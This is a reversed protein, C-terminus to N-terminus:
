EMCCVQFLRITEFICASVFKASVIDESTFYPGVIDFGPTLDRWLFQLIYNTLKTHRDDELLQYIDLLSVQDRESMALGIIQHNRSNWM